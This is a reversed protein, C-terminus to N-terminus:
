IYSTPATRNGGRSGLYNVQDNSLCACGMSSSYTSPCCEGKFENDVLYFLEGEKLPVPTGTYNQNTDDPMNHSYISADTLWKSAQQSSSQNLSCFSENYSSQLFLIIIVFLVLFGCATLSNVKLKKFKM